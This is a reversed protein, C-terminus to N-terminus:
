RCNKRLFDIDDNSLTQQNGRQLIEACRPPKGGPAPAPSATRPAPAAAASPVPGSAAAPRADVPAPAAAPRTAEVGRPIAAAPRPTAAPASARAPRAPAARAASAAVAAAPVPQVAPTTVRSPEATPALPPDNAVPTNIPAPLPAVAPRAAAPVPTEQMTASGAPPPAPEGARRAMFAAVFGVLVVGAVLAVIWGSHRARAVAPMPQPGAPAGVAGGNRSAGLPLADPAAVPAPAPTSPAPPSAPAYAPRGPAVAGAVPVGGDLLARLEAVSQPRDKPRVSLAADIARLFNTSYRGEAVHSL